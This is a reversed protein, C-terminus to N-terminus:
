AALGYVSDLIFFATFVDFKLSAVVRRQGYGLGAFRSGPMPM